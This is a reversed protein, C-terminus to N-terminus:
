LGSVRRNGRQCQAVNWYILIGYVGYLWLYISPIFVRSRSPCPISMSMYVMSWTPTWEDCV